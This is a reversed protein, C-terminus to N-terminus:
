GKIRRGLFPKNLEPFITDGYLEQKKRLVEARVDLNEYMKFNKQWPVYAMAIPFQEIYPMQPKWEQM